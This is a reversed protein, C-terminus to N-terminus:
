TQALVHSERPNLCLRVNAALEQDVLDANFPLLEPLHSTTVTDAELTFALMEATTDQTYLSGLSFTPAGSGAQVMAASMALLTLLLTLTLVVIRRKM